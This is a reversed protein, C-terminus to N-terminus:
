PPFWPGHGLRVGAAIEFAVTPSTHRLRSTKPASSSRAACCDTLLVTVIPRYASEMCTSPSPIDRHVAAGPHRTLPWHLHATASAQPLQHVGPRTTAIPAYIDVTNLLEYRGQTHSSRWCADRPPTCPLPAYHITAVLELMYLALVHLLYSRAICTHLQACM